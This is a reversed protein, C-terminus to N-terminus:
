KIQPKKSANPSLWCALSSSSCRCTSLPWCCACVGQSVRMSCHSTLIVSDSDVVTPHSLAVGLSWISPSSAPCYLTMPLSRDAGPSESARTPCMGSACMHGSLVGEVSPPSWSFSDGPWWQGMLLDGNGLFPAARSAADKPCWQNGGRGAEGSSPAAGSSSWGCKM